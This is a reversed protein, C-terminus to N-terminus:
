KSKNICTTITIRKPCFQKEKSFLVEQKKQKNREKGYLYVLTMPEPGVYSCFLGSGGLM